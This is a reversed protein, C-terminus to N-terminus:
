GGKTRQADESPHPEDEVKVSTDAGVPKDAATKSDLAAAATTEGASEVADGAVNATEDGGRAEEDRTEDRETM